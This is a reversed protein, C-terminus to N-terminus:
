RPVTFLTSLRAPGDEGAGLSLVYTGRPLGATSQWSGKELNWTRALRGDLTTMRAERWLGDAPSPIAFGLATARVPVPAPRSPAPKPSCPQGEPCYRYIMVKGSGDEEVSLFREGKPGIAVNTAHRLDIAGSYFNTEPGPTVHGLVRGTRADLVTVEGRVKAHPGRDLYAVYVFDKDASMSWPLVLGDTNRDLQMPVGDGADRYPIEYRTQKRTAPDSWGDYRYMVNPTYGRSAISGSALLMADEEEIYKIRAVESQNETFPVPWIKIASAKYQPVGAPDLTPPPFYTLQRGAFVIGGNATVDISSVFPYGVLYTEFESSQPAGDGNGDVWIWRKRFNEEKTSDWTPHEPGAWIDGLGNWTLPFYACPIGIESSPEFRVVALYRTYMDTLFLYLRGQIRRVFVSELSQVLRPDRPYRFPDVTAAVFRASRGAPKNWDMHFREANLFISTGASDPDFDASNVFSQGQVQWVLTDSASLGSFCRIDTGGGVQMPLGTGAVCVRGSTDAGLGRIGWFRKPGDAGPRPGAFVGGSDGFTALRQPATPTSVDFIKVNQDPGNDAVMLRGDPLFALATPDEVSTITGGGPGEIRPANAGVPPPSVNGIFARGHFNRIVWTGRSPHHASDSRIKRSFARNVRRGDKYTAFQAGGEDWFSSTWVSGDPDVIAAEVFNQIHEERSGYTNGVWHNEIGPLRTSVNELASITALPLALLLIGRHFM